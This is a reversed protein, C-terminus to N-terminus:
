SDQNVELHPSTEAELNALLEFITRHAEHKVGSAFKFSIREFWVIFNTLLIGEKASPFIM